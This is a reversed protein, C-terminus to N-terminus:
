WFNKWLQIVCVGWAIARVCVTDPVDQWFSIGDSRICLSNFIGMLRHVFDIMNLVWVDCILFLSMLMNILAHQM